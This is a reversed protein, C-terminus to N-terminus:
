IIKIQRRWLNPEFNAGALAAEDREFAELLPKRAQELRSKWSALEATMAAKMSESRSGLAASSTM